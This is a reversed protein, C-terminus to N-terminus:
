CLLTMDSPHSGLQLVAMEVDYDSLAEHYLKFSSTLKIARTRRQGLLAGFLNRRSTLLREYPKKASQATMSTKELSFAAGEVGVPTSLDTM